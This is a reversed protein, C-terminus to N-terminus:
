FFSWGWKNFYRFASRSFVVAGKLSKHSERQWAHIVVAEPCYLTQWGRAQLSRSLDADEFYLFYREDFGGVEKLAATRCAMLAGSVFPVPYPHDYGVDRMEYRDMRTKFVPELVKPLFRRLFLDFVTPYRRNLPQLRGDEYLVRPCTIAADRNRRLFALLREISAPGMVIDPNCFIHYTSAVRKLIANHGGGFGTNRDSLIVEVRTDADALRQIIQPTDDSSRNDLLYLRTEMGAPICALVSRATREILAANNFTVIGISLSENATASM